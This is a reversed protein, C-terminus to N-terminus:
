IGDSKLELEKEKLQYYLNQMKHVFPCFMEKGYWLFMSCPQRDERLKFGISSDIDLDLINRGISKYLVAFGFRKTLIEETVPIGRYWEPHQECTVIDATTAVIECWEGSNTNLMEVLNGIEFDRAKM